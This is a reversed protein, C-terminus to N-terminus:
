QCTLIPCLGFLAREPSKRKKESRGYKFVIFCGLLVLSTSRKKPRARAANKFEDVGVVVEPDRM